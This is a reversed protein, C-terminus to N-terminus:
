SWISPNGIIGRWATCSLSHTQVLVPTCLLGNHPRRSWSLASTSATTGILKTELNRWIYKFGAWGCLGGDRVPFCRLGSPRVLGLIAGFFHRVDCLANPITLRSLAAFQITQNKSFFPIPSERFNKNAKTSQHSQLGNHPCSSWSLALSYNMNSQQPNVM